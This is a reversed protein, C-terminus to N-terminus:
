GVPWCNQQSRQGGVTAGSVCGATGWRQRGEPLRHEGLPGAITAPVAKRGGNGHGGGPSAAPRRVLDYLASCMRSGTFRSCEPLEAVISEVSERERQLERRVAMRDAEAQALLDERYQMDRKLSALATDKGNLARKFANENEKYQIAATEAAATAEGHNVAQNYNFWLSAALAIGLLGMIKWSGFM